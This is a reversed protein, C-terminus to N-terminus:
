VSDLPVIVGQRGLVERMGQLLNKDQPKNQVIIKV